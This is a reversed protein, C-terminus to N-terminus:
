SSILLMNSFALAIYCFTTKSDLTYKATSPPCQAKTQGSLFFLTSTSTNKIKNTRNALVPSASTTHSTKTLTNGHSAFIREQFCIEHAELTGRTTQTPRNELRSLVSRLHPKNRTSHGRQGIPFDWFSPLIPSCGALTAMSSWWATNGLDNRITLETKGIM